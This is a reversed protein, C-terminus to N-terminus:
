LESPVTRGGETAGCEGNCSYGDGCDSVVFEDPKVCKQDPFTSSCDNYNNNICEMLTQSDCRSKYVREIEDRFAKVEDQMGELISEVENQQETTM